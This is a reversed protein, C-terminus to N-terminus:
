SCSMIILTYPINFYSEEIVTNVSKFVSHAISEYENQTRVFEGRDKKLLFESIKNQNPIFCGDMSVFRGNPKLHDKIMNFLASCQSNNLHHLVGAAIVIDFKVSSDMNLDEVASCVFNGRSGYKTKAKAIYNEDIDIGTYDVKPLFDLIDGPGCGIDLIKYDVEAKVHHEVFYRRAKYGGVLKQYNTYALPHQLIRRPDLKRYM